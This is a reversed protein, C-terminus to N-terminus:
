PQQHARDRMEEATKATEVQRAAVTAIAKALADPKEAGEAKSAEITVTRTNIRAQSARLLKLEASGPLLPAQGSEGAQQQQNGQQENEQQMKQVAELLQELTDVIEQEITQTLAGVNLAGLRDAVTGMDEALQGVVRPFAITTGDEDLIHLCASADQSLARQQMSLDALQLQEPRKFNESGQGDLQGTAENIPRQKALMDRFRSELDRLTEAKEEKRLQNLAAELEKQAQELEEIAREQSQTADDKKQQNLSKSAGKMEQQAQDVNKQGPAQKGQEGGQQGGQKGGQQGEASEQSEKKMQESLDGTEEALKEQEDALKEGESKEGLAQKAAELKEKAERLAQEAQQQEPQAGSPNGSQLQQGAQSMSGAGKQASEAASKTQERASELEASDAEEDPKLEGLRQLDESLQETDRSLAEQREAQEKSESEASPAAGSASEQSERSLAEQRKLLEDVRRSAQELQALMRGSMEGQTTSGHLGRQEELIKSVKERYEQLRKMEDKREANESDRELLIALLRDADALWQGQEEMAKHLAAPDNFTEVLKDLRDALGLEGAREIVRRLRAANDPERESLSERLRFVRDEFRQFRDRIMEEKLALPDKKTVEPATGEQALCRAVPAFCVALACALLGVRAATARAIRGAASPQRPEIMSSM